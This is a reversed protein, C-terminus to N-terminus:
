GTRVEVQLEEMKALKKKIEGTKMQGIEWIFLVKLNLLNNQQSEIILRSIAQGTMEIPPKPSM